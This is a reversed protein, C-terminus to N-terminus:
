RRVIQLMPHTLIEMICALWFDSPIEAQIQFVPKPTRLTQAIETLAGVLKPVQAQFFNKGMNTEFFNM